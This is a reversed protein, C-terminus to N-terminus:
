GFNGMFIFNQSLPHNLQFGESNAGAWQRVLNNWYVSICTCLILCKKEVLVVCIQRHEESFSIHLTSVPITECCHNWHTGVVYTKNKKQPSICFINMKELGIVYKSCFTKEFIQGRSCSWTHQRATVADAVAEYHHEEIQVTLASAFYMLEQHIKELLILM